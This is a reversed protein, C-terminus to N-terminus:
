EILRVGFKSLEDTELKTVLLYKGATLQDRTQTSSLKDLKGLGKIDILEWTIDESEHRQCLIFNLNM